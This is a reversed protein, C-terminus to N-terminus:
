RLFSHETKVNTLSNCDNQLFLMNNMKIITEQYLRRKVQSTSLSM